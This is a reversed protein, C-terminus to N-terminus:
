HDEDGEPKMSCAAPLRLTIPRSTVPHNLSRQSCIRMESQTLPGCLFEAWAVAGMGLTEGDRIWGRLRHDEPSGPNLAGILFSTDLHIM